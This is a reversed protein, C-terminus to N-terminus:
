TRAFQGGSGARVLAPLHRQRRRHRPHRVARRSDLLDHAFDRPTPRAPARRPAELEDFLPMFAFALMWSRRSGAIRTRPLTSTSRARGEGRPASCRRSRRGSTCSDSRRGCAGRRSARRHLLLRPRAGRVAVDPRIGWRRCQSHGYKFNLYYILVLTLTFMFTGFYWFSKRDRKWHVYGGMLASCWSSRDGLIRRCSRITSGEADRMWQWKFYLWYMGLQGSSRRRGTSCRRSGTSAATSTTCSRPEVHDARGRQDRPYHAARIPQTLFPTM